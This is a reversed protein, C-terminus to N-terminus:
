GPAKLLTFHGHFEQTLVRGSEEHEKISCSLVNNKEPDLRTRTGEFGMSNRPSFEVLNKTNRLRVALCM